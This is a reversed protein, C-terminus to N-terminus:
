LQNFTAIFKKRYDEVNNIEVQFKEPNRDFIKQYLSLSEDFYKKAKDFHRWDFYMVALNKTYRALNEDWLEQNESDSAYIQKVFAISKLYFIESKKYKKTKWLLFGLNNYNGSLFIGYQEPADQSIRETIAIAQEMYKVAKKYQQYSGYFYGLNNLSVAYGISYVAEDIELLEKRISMGEYRMKKALKYEDLYQYLDGYDDLLTAYEVLIKTDNYRKLYKKYKNAAVAYLTDATQFDEINAYLRGMQYYAYASYKENVASNKDILENSINLMKSYYYKSKDYESTFRYLLGINNYVHYLYFNYVMPNDQALHEFIKIAELSYKESLSYENLIKYTSGLNSAALALSELDFGSGAVANEKCINYAKLHYQLSLEGEQYDFYTSGLNTYTNALFNDYKKPNDAALKEYIKIQELFSNVAEEIRNNSQLLVATYGFLQAYMSLHKESNDQALQKAVPQAQAFCEDAQEAKNITNYLYGMASLTTVYADLSVESNEDYFMKSLSLAKKLTTEAKDYELMERYLDGLNNLVDIKCYIDTTHREAQQYRAVAKKYQRIEYLFTGYEMLNYFDTSDAAIIEEWNTEIYKYNASGGAFMRYENEEKLTEILNNIDEAVEDRLQIKEKLKQLSNTQQYLAIAGNVDGNEFFKLANLELSDLDDKNIRALRESFYHLKELATNQEEYAEALKDQYEKLSIQHNNLLDAYENKLIDFNNQLSQKGIGYYKEKAENLTEKKSLIIIFEEQESLIWKQIDKDNVIEYDKKFVDECIVKSGAKLTSFSLSFCGNGDSITPIAGSVKISVDEIPQGGSNQLVVKGKQVSQAFLTLYIVTFFISFIFKKM